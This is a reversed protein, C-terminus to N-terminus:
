VRHGICPSVCRAALSTTRRSDTLSVHFHVDQGLRAPAVSALVFVIVYLWILSYCLSVFLSLLMRTQVETPHTMLRVIEDAPMGLLREAATNVFVSTIAFEHLSTSIIASPATRNVLEQARYWEISYPDPSLRVYELDSVGLDACHQERTQEDIGFSAARHMIQLCALTFLRENSLRLHSSILHQRVALLGSYM